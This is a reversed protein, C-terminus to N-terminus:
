GGDRRRFCLTFAVLACTHMDSLFGYAELNMPPESWDEELRPLDLAGALEDDCPRRDEVDADGLQLAQGRLLLADQQQDRFAGLMCSTVAVSHQKQVGRMIMCLHMAEIVVGVGRPHITDQLAHAIQGLQQMGGHEVIETEGRCQVPVQAADAFAVIKSRFQPLFAHM